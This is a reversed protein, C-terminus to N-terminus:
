MQNSVERKKDISKNFTVNYGSIYQFFYKDDAKQCKKISDIDEKNSRTSTDYNIKNDLLFRLNYKELFKRSWNKTIGFTNLSYFCTLLIVYKFYKINM